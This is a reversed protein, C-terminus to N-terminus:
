FIKSIIERMTKVYYVYNDLSVDPPVDHDVSPIYGGEPLCEPLKKYLEKKIFEKGRALARKDINGILIIKKGYKERLKCVDMGAAVELPYFGNIGAKMYSPILPEINGDSDVLIIKVGNARLFSTIREYFPLMLEDFMKPSIFPGRNYAIDEWIAVYDVKINEFVKKLIRIIFNSWFDFVERVFNPNVIFSRLTATLGMWSRIQAFLGPVWVGLLFDRTEYYEFLEPGWTKPFRRPDDPDYREKIKYFDEPTKVPYDIFQPMSMADMRVRAKVGTRDLITVCMEERKLERPVFRPIPGYDIPIEERRDFGFYDDISVPARLSPFPVDSTAPLEFTRSVMQTLSGLVVNAPLGEKYWRLVTDPWYGLWECIPPRDVEKFLM